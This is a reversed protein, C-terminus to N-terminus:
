DFPMIIPRGDGNFFMRGVLDSDAQSVIELGSAKLPSAMNPVIHDAIWFSPPDEPDLKPDAVEHDSPKRAASLEESFHLPQTQGLQNTQYIPVQTARVHGDSSTTAQFTQHPEASVDSSVGPLRGHHDGLGYFSRDRSLEDLLAKEFSPSAFMRAGDAKEVDGSISARDQPAVFNAVPSAAQWAETLSAQVADIM